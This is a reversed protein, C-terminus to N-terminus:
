TPLEPAAEAIDAGAPLSASGQKVIEVSGGNESDANRTVLACPMFTGQGRVIAADSIRTPPGAEM